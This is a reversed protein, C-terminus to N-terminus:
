FTSIIHINDGDIEYKLYIPFTANQGLIDFGVHIVITNDNNSKLIYPEVEKPYVERDNLRQKVIDTINTKVPIYVDPIEFDKKFSHNIVFDKKFTHNNFTRAVEKVEEYAIQRIEEESFVKRKSKFM